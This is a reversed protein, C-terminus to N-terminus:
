LNKNRTALGLAVALPPGLSGALPEFAPPHSISKFPEAKVAPIGLQESAYKEIGLLNAGGGSLIVREVSEKYSREFLSRVRKVENLIVDLYPLMLTSVQYQGGTGILGRQRKLDEARHIDVGYGRSVAQTLSSAAYDTQANYKLSGNSSVAIATSRAGIDVILTTTPDGSTLLRALSLTEVELFELSLGVAQFIGKYTEILKNPISVLFVQQKLTGKEDKFERVPLWDIAVETLPLPVFAKAQYTMAQATEEKSMSPIEILATFASYSPLSAVVSKANPHMENLLKKMLEATQAGIMKLSSTQIASNLRDLHGQSELIGYNKLTVGSASSVAEVIKISATGIDVGLVSSKGIQPIKLSKFLSM